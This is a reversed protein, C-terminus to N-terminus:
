DSKRRRKVQLTRTFGTLDMSEGVPVGDIEVWAHAIFPNLRVGSVWDPTRRRTIGWIMVAVSRQLCGNGACRPSVSNAADRYRLVEAASPASTGKVGARLVAAIKKPPLKILFYSIMTCVRAMTQTALSYNGHTEVRVPSSM